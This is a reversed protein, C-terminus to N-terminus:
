DRSSPRESYLYYRNVCGWWFPFFLPFNHYHFLFDLFMEIDLLCSLIWHNRLYIPLCIRPQYGFLRLLVMKFIRAFSIIVYTSTNPALRSLLLFHYPVRLKIILFSPFLGRYLSNLFVRLWLAEKFAHSMAYYEAETSSLAISKQKVASWSILSGFFYFLYGSISKRDLADSAWDADSCGMNQMYGHLSDPVTSSATGLCLALLRTGGLYHLVHKAVLMHSWTPKSSFRGLWMAYYAIDPRTVVALYM